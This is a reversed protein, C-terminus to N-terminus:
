KSNKYIVRKYYVKPNFYKCQKGMQTIKADTFLVIFCLATALARLNAM